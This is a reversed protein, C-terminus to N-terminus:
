KNGQISYVVGMLTTSFSMGNLNDFKLNIMNGNYNMYQVSLKQINYWPRIFGNVVDGLLLYNKYYTSPHSSYRSTEQRLGASNEEQGVMIREGRSDKVTITLYHSQSGEMRAFCVQTIYSEPVRIFRVENAGCKFPVIQGPAFVIAKSSISFSTIILGIVLIIKKM